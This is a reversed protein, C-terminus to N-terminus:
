WHGWNGKRNTRRQDGDIELGHFVSNERCESSRGEPSPQACHQPTGAGRAQGVARICFPAGVAHDELVFSAVDPGIGEEAEPVVPPQFPKDLYVAVAFLEDGLDEGPDVEVFVGAIEDPRGVADGADRSSGYLDWRKGEALRGSDGEDGRDVQDPVSVQLDHWRKLREEDGRGPREVPHRFIEVRCVVGAPDRVFHEPGIRGDKIKGKFRHLDGADVPLSFRQSELADGAPDGVVGRRYRGFCSIEELGAFVELDPFM